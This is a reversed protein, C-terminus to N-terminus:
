GKDTFARQWSGSKGGSKHTLAIDRIRAQRAVGKVMDYLALLGVSCGTMAEMEVGTRGSCRVTVQMQIGEPIPEFEVRIQDILLPHCLPILDATKKSAGIAALRAVSLGDGKPLNGDILQARVPEPLELIGTATAQRVTVEKHSVDVMHAAGQDDLHTLKTV